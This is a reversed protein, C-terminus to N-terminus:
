WVFLAFVQVGTVVQILTLLCLGVGFVGHVMCLYKRRKKFVEMWYGTFFTALIIPIAVMGVTYHEGTIRYFNWERHTYYLGLGIGILWLCIAVKGYLVHQKWPFKLKAGQHVTRFRLYGWYLAIYGFGIGVLQVAPHIYLHLKAEEIM